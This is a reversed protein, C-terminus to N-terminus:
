ACITVYLQAKNPEFKTLIKFAIQIVSQLTSLIEGILLCITDTMALVCIYISFSM